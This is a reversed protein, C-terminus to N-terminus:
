ARRRRLMALGGLALLAMTAPEPVPPTSFVEFAWLRLHNDGGNTSPDKIDLRLGKTAIPINLVYDAVSFKDFQGFDYDPVVKWEDGDLYQIRFEAIRQGDDEAILRLHQIITEEELMLTVYQQGSSPGDFRPAGPRGSIFTTRSDTNPAGDKVIYAGERVDIQTSGDANSWILTAGPQNVLNCAFPNTEYFEFKHTRFLNGPSDTQNVTFVWRLNTTTVSTGLTLFEAGRVSDVTNASGPITKWVGDTLDLYDLHYSFTGGIADNLTYWRAYGITTKAFEFEVYFPCSLGNTLWRVGTRQGVGGADGGYSTTVTSTYVPSSWFDEPWEAAAVGSWALTLMAMTLTVVFKKSM